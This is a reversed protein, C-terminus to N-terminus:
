WPPSNVAGRLFWWPGSPPVEPVAESAGGVRVRAVIDGSGRGLGDYLASQGSGGRESTKGGWQGACQGASKEGAEFEKAAPTVNEAAAACYQTLRSTM